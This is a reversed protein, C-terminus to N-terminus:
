IQIGEKHAASRIFRAAADYEEESKLHETMLCVDKDKLAHVGRLYAAYDLTGQGPVCEDLHLTLNQGIIIDKAHCSRIAPGLKGIFDKIFAGTDFYRSPSNIMNVPDFHVAFSRRDVARILESYSEASDPYMWPMPELTYFTRRPKVADVIDRVMMVIREFTERTLDLASPGDWKDGRSGAINVCCRAGIAEAVALARKCQALAEDAKGRDPSLPNSWAGVEAIVIGAARAEAEYSAIARDDADLGVPCYAATYGKEKVAEAWEKADTYKRFVPGGFRM